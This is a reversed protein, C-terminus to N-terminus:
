PIKQWSNRRLSCNNVEIPQAEEPLWDEVSGGSEDSLFVFKLENRLDEEPSDFQRLLNRNVM